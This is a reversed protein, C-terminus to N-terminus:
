KSHSSKSLQIKLKHTIIQDPDNGNHIRTHTNESTMYCTSLCIDFRNKRRVETEEFQKRKKSDCTNDRDTGQQRGFNEKQQREKREKERKM